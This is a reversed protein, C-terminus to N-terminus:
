EIKIDKFERIAWIGNVISIVFWIGVDFIPGFLPGFMQSGLSVFVQSNGQKIGWIINFALTASSICVLLYLIFHGKKMTAGILTAIILIIPILVCILSVLLTNKTM